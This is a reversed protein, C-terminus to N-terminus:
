GPQVSARERCAQLYRNLKPRIDEVDVNMTASWERLLRDTFHSLAKEETQNLKRQTRLITLGRVLQSTAILDDSARVENIRSKWMRRDPDLDRVTKKLEKQAHQLMDQSAVPRIRPNDTGNSPFWYAGNKTKVRFCAVLKEHIPKEEIKKIQGIGYSHHVVWVGISYPSIIETM